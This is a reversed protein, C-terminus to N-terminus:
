WESSRSEKGSAKREIVCKMKKGRKNLIRKSLGELMSAMKLSLLNRDGEYNSDYTRGKSM